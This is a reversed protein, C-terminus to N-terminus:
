RPEGEGERGAVCDHVEKSNRLRSVVTGDEGGWGSVGSFVREEVLKVLREDKPTPRWVPEDDVNVWFVFILIQWVCEITGVDSVEGPYYM